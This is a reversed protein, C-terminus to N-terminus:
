KKQKKQKPESLDDYMAAFLGELYERSDVDDVLLM